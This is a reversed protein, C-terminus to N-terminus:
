DLRREGMLADIIPTIENFRRMLSLVAPEIEVEDAECWGQMLTLPGLSVSVNPWQCEHPAFRRRFEFAFDRSAIRYRKLERLKLAHVNYLVRNAKLGSDDQWVSFFIGTRNPLEDMRDNTWASKQLKLVPCGAMPGVKCILGSETSASRDFEAKANHLAQLFPSVVNFNGPAEGDSRM